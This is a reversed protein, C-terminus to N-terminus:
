IARVTLRRRQRLATGAMGFGGVMMAWTSPEPVGGPDILTYTITGSASIAGVEAGEGRLFAMSDAAVRIPSTGTGTLVSIQSSTLDYHYSASLSLDCYIESVVCTVKGSIPNLLDFFGTGGVEIGLWGTYDFQGTYPVSDHFGDELTSTFDISIAAIPGSVRPLFAAGVM